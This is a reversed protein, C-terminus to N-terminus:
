PATWGGDVPLAAGSISAGADDALFVTPAGIEDVTAFRKNPQQKLLVDRIVEERPIGHSKAQGDIPAEVLPTWVSGPCIANCAIDDEATELAVVRTLGQALLEVECAGRLAAVDGLRGRGPGDLKELVLEASREEM